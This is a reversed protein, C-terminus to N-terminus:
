APVPENVLVLWGNRLFGHWDRDTDQASWISGGGASCTSRGPEPNKDVTLNPPEGHRCWCDHDEGPRDCNSAQSDITWDLGNPLKVVICRGDQGHIADAMWTANWMAGPEHEGIRKVEGTDTRRYYTIGGMSRWTGEAEYDITAGCEPCTEPWPAADWEPDTARLEDPGGEGSQWPLDIRHGCEPHVSMTREWHPAPELWFCKTAM